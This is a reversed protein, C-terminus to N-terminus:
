HGKKNHNDKGNLRSKEQSSRSSGFWFSLIQPMGATLVGLIITFTDQISTQEIKAQTDIIYVLTFVIAFYGIVFIFTLFAQIKTGHQEALHRASIRDLQDTKYYELSNDRCYKRFKADIEKIKVASEPSLNSIANHLISDDDTNVDDGLLEKSLFNIALGAIPSGLATAITPAVSALTKKWDTM